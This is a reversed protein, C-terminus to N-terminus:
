WDYRHGDLDSLNGPIEPIGLIGYPIGLIAYPIGLIAYPNRLFTSLENTSFHLLL